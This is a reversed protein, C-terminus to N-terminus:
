EGAHYNSKCFGFIPYPGRYQSKRMDGQERTREAPLTRIAVPNM